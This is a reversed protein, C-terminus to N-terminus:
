GHRTLRGTKEASGVGFHLHGAMTNSDRGMGINGPNV